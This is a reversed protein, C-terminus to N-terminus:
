LATVLGAAPAAVDGGSDGVSVSVTSLMVTAEPADQDSGGGGGGGAWGAAAGNEIHSVKPPWAAEGQSSNDDLGGGSAANKAMANPAASTTNSTAETTSPPLTAGAAATAASGSAAGAPPPPAPASATSLSESPSAARGRNSGNSSGIDGGGPIGHQRSPLTQGGGADSVPTTAATAADLTPQILGRCEPHYHLVDEFILLRLNHKTLEVAEICQWDVHSEALPELAADHLSSLYPHELAQEVSIRRNPDLILMKSLLDVADANADPFKVGLNVPSTDPLGLMFRRARPNTVFWIDSETPKGILSTILKLQHIYDNGAFLPKRGLMEGFICGVSWVDIAENYNQVSLMIEPARYWRTVVYETLDGTEHEDHVGRSLGFDCLKLDCNANLLVNSPKLDRHLVSASHIYKLACLIQYLFYQTHEDTLRQRSYIVRHLDTEMLESIIYVDDFDELSSPPLIDVVKMVNEHNFHRLLRIERVIRKADVLDDFAGPIKKIAVKNNSEHDLASIVVGYAGHGIPKIMEYKLDLEFDTGAANVARVNRRSRRQLAREKLGKIQQNLATVWSEREELTDAYVMLAKANTIVQFAHVRTPLNTVRSEAILVMRGRPRLDGQKSFYTIVHDELIFWRRKWQVGGKKTLHGDLRTSGHMKVTSGRGSNDM